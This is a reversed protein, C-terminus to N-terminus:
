QVLKAHQVAPSDEAPKPAEPTGPQPKDPRKLALDRGAASMKLLGQELVQKAAAPDIGDLGQLLTLVDGQLGQVQAELINIVGEMTEEAPVRVCIPSLNGGAVPRLVLVTPDEPKAPKGVEVVQCSTGQLVGFAGQFAPRALTVFSGPQIQFM